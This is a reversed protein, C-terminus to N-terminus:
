SAREGISKLNSAHMNLPTPIQLPGELAAVYLLLHISSNGTSVAALSASMEDLGDLCHLIQRLTKKMETSVLHLVLKVQYSLFRFM